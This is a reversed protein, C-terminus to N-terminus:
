RTRGRGACSRRDAAVDHLGGAQEIALLLADWWAQPSVETGEPHKASGQRVLAGTEAERIVVKCSQTSSDIGAVLTTM